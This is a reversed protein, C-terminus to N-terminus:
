IRCKIITWVGILGDQFRIKKGQSFKRPHYSVPVERISCGSKLIKATVEECFEFGNSELNINKLARSSFLKYGTNIDALNSGFMFNLLATLFRGGLFFLFYGRKKGPNRSGYVVPAGEGSAELLKQIDSPDYELDADQILVLDGTVAKLATKIAAGKGLNREHKLLIFGHSNKLVDLIKKTGDNSGDDVVIIEKKYDLVPVAAIREMITEITESENYVPIIISIKKM